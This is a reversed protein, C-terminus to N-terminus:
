IGTGGQGIIQEVEYHGLRGLHQPDASPLLFDLRAGQAARGDDHSTMPSPIQLFPPLAPPEALHRGLNAALEKGGALEELTRQCIVCGDLHAILEAHESPALRGDLRAQWRERPPCSSNM